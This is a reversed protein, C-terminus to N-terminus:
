NVGLKSECKLGLLFFEETGGFLQDGRERTKREQKRILFVEKATSRTCTKFTFLRQITKEQYKKKNREFEELLSSKRRISFSRSREINAEEV